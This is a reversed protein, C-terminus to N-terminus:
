TSLNIGIALYNMLDFIRFEEEEEARAYFGKLFLEQDPYRTLVFEGSVQFKGLRRSQGRVGRYMANILHYETELRVLHQGSLRKSYDVGVGVRITRPDSPYNPNAKPHIELSAPVRIGVYDDKGDGEHIPYRGLIRHYEHTAYGTERRLESRMELWTGWRVAIWYADRMLDMNDIALPYDLALPARYYGGSLQWGDTIGWLLTADGIYHDDGPSFYGAHAKLFTDKALKWRKGVMIGTANSGKKDLVSTKIRHHAMMVSVPGTYALSVTHRRYKNKMDFLSYEPTFKGSVFTTGGKQTVKEATPSDHRQLEKALQIGRQTTGRLPEPPMSRAAQRLEMEAIPYNGEWIYTYLYESEVALDEDVSRLYALYAKRGREFQLDRLLARALALQAEPSDVFGLGSEDVKQLLEQYDDQKAKIIINQLNKPGTRATPAAATKAVKQMVETGKTMFQFFAFWQVAADRIAPCQVLREGLQGAKDELTQAEVRLEDLEKQTCAWLPESFLGGTLALIMLWKLRM